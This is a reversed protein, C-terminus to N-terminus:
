KSNLTIGLAEEFAMILEVSGLSDAEREGIEAIVNPDVGKEKLARRLQQWELLDRLKQVTSM